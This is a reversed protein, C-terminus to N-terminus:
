NNRYEAFTTKVMQQVQLFRQKVSLLTNMREFAGQRESILYGKIYRIEEKFSKINESDMQSYELSALAKYVEDLMSDLYSILYDFAVLEAYEETALSIGNGKLATELSIISIIPVSSTQVLHKEDDTLTVSNGVTEKMLKDAISSIIKKTQVLYSQERTMPQQKTKLNICKNDDNNKCEYVTINDNDAGYLKAELLKSDKILSNRHMIIIGGGGDDNPKSILTGSLSMLDEIIEQSMNPNMKRLAHWVLNFETGLIGKYENRNATAKDTSSCSSRSSFYNGVMNDGMGKANCALEQSAATKPFAGSAILAGMQCSNINQSNLFRAMSELQSLVDAVQPSITKVTLMAGYSVASSGINKMLKELNSSNIYGLGGTHLDIGGCGMKLSPLQVNILNEDSVSNRTHISGGTMYGGLQDDIVGPRNTNSMVGLKSLSNELLGGTSAYVPTGLQLVLTMLFYIINIYSRM